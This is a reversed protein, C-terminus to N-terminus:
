IMRSFHRDEHEDPSLASVFSMEDASRDSRRRGTGPDISMESVADSTRNSSRDRPDNVALNPAPFAPGLPTGTYASSSPRSASTPRHIISEVGLTNSDPRLTGSDARPKTVHPDYAAPPDPLVSTLPWAEQNRFMPQSPSPLTPSPPRSSEVSSPRDAVGFSSSRARERDFFPSPFSTSSHSNNRSHSKLHDKEMPVRLEPINQLRRRHRRRLYFLYALPILALVALIPVVIATIKLPLSLGGDSSGAAQGSTAAPEASVTVIATTPASTSASTSAPTPSRSDTALESPKTPSLPIPTAIANPNYTVLPPLGEPTEGLVNSPRISTPEPIITPLSTTTTTVVREDNRIIAAAM